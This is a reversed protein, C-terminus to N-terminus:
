DLRRVDEAVAQQIYLGFSHCPVVLKTFGPTPFAVFSANFPSVASGRTQGSPDLWVYPKTESIAAAAGDWCFGSRASRPHAHPSPRSLSTGLTTTSHHHLPPSGRRRRHHHLTRNHRTSLGPHHHGLNYSSCVRVCLRDFKLTLSRGFLAAAARFRAGWFKGPRDLGASLRNKYAVASGPQNSHRITHLM